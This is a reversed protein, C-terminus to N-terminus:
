IDRRPAENELKFVSFNSPGMTPETIPVTNSRIQRDDVFAIQLLLLSQQPTKGLLLCHKILIRYEQQEIKRLCIFLINHFKWKLKFYKLNDVHTMPKQLQYRM